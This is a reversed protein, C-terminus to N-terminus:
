SDPDEDYFLRCVLLCFSWIGLGTRFRFRPVFLLAYEDLPFLVGFVVKAGLALCFCSFPEISLPFFFRDFSFGELFLVASFWTM